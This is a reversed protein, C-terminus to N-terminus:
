GELTWGKPCVGGTQPRRAELDDRFWIYHARPSPFIPATSKNQNAGTQSLYAGWAPAHETSDHQAIQIVAGMGGAGRACNLEGERRALVYDRQKRDTSHAWSRRARTGCVSGRVSTRKRERDRKGRGGRNDERGRSARLVRAARERQLLRALAARCWRLAQVPAQQALNRAGCGRCCRAGLGPAAPSSSWGTSNLLLRRWTAPRQTPPASCRKSRRARPGDRQGHAARAPTQRHSRTRVAPAAPAGLSSFGAPARPFCSCVGSDPLPAPRRARDPM